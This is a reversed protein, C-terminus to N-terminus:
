PPDEDEGAQGGRQAGQPGQHGQHHARTAKDEQLMMMARPPGNARARPPERQMSSLVKSGIRLTPSLKWPRLAPMKLWKSNAVAEPVEPDSATGPYDKDKLMHHLIRLAELYGEPKGCRVLQVFYSVSAADCQLDRMLLGKYEVLEPSARLCWWDGPPGRSGTGFDPGHDGLISWVDERDVLLEGDINEMAYSRFSELFQTTSPDEGLHVGHPGQSEPLNPLWRLRQLGHWQGWPGAM